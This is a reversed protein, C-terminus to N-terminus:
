EIRSVAMRELEKLDDKVKFKAEKCEIGSKKLYAVFETSSGKGIAVIGFEKADTAGVKAIAVSVQRECALWLLFENAASHAMRERKIRGSTSLHEALLLRGEGAGELAERSVVAVEIGSEKAARGVAGLM